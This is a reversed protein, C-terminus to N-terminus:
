HGWCMGFGRVLELEGLGEWCWGTGSQPEMQNRATGVTGRVQTGELGGRAIDFEWLIRMLCLCVENTGADDTSQVM